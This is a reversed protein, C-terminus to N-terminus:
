LNKYKEGCNRIKYTRINTAMIGSKNWFQANDDSDGKLNYHFTEFHNMWSRYLVNRENDDYKDLNYNNCSTNFFLLLQSMARIYRFEYFFLLLQANRENDDHVTVRKICFKFNDMLTASFKLQEISPSDNM